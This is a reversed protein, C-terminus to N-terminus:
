ADGVIKIEPELLIKFKHYVTEQVMSMLRLIDDASAGGRNVIFNAHKLSVQADGFCLGKAGALDILKGAPKDNSPNKFFCGASALGAPQSAKRASLLEDAEAKLIEPDRRFVSFRGELIIYSSLDGRDPDNFALSRYSFNLDGKDLSDIDGDPDIVRVSKLVDGMSKGWAGANMRIAGGVSGPIGLAFSLGAMAKKIAFRCLANMGAGAMASIVDTGCASIEALSKKMAIVVGRIGRDRVLINSGGGVIFGPLDNKKLWRVLFIMEKENRAELFVDAPGGVRFTTHVAMPEDFRVRDGFRRTLEKKLESSIAMIDALLM